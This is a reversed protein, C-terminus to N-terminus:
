TTQATVRLVWIENDNVAVLDADDDGDVDAALTARTGSFPGAYWVEPAAFGTGTSRMVQVDTDNVAILDADGDADVDAAMTKKTGHFPTASWQQAPTVFWNPNAPIVRVGTSDVLVYDAAGDGTTDAALTAKEGRISPGWAVLPLTTTVNSRAALNPVGGGFLGVVDMDGDADLDAGLNGYDGAITNDLWRVYNEFRNVGYQNVTSRGVWIGRPQVRRVLVADARGDGDMDGVLRATGAVSPDVTNVNGWHEQPLFSSGTSRVVRNGFQYNNFSVLDDNGDGDVDGAEISIHAEFFGSFWLEPTTSAQAPATLTMSLLGTLGAIGLLRM